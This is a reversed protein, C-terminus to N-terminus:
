PQRRLSRGRDLQQYYSASRGSEMRRRLITAFESGRGPAALGPNPISAPTCTVGTYNTSNVTVSGNPFITPGTQNWNIQGPTLSPQDPTHLNAQTGSTNINLTPFNAGFPVVNVLDSFTAPDRLVSAGARVVRKGNGRVDWAVGLRPAFDKYDANFMSSIPAGPGVQEVAPTTLPNVNPNFNGIYNNKEM